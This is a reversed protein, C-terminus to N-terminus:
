GLAPRDTAVTAGFIPTIARPQDPGGRFGVGAKGGDGLAPRLGQMTTAVAKPQEKRAEVSGPPSCGKAGITAETGPKITERTGSGLIALGASGDVFV